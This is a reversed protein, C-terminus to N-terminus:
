GPVVQSSTGGCGYTRQLLRKDKENLSVKHLELIDFFVQSKVVGSQSIDIKALIKKVMYKM